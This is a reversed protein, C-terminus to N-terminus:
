GLEGGEPARWCKGILLHEHRGAGRLDGMAHSKCGRECNWPGEARLPQAPRCIHWVSLVWTLLVPVFAQFNTAQKVLSSTDMTFGAIGLMVGVFVPIVWGAQKLQLGFDPLLIGVPILLILAALFWYRRVFDRDLKM